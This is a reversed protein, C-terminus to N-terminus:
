MFHTSAALRSAICCMLKHIGSCFNIFAPAASSISALIVQSCFHFPVKNNMAFHQKAMRRTPALQNCRHTLSASNSQGCWPPPRYYAGLGRMACWQHLNIKICIPTIAINSPPVVPRSPGGRWVEFRQFRIADFQKLVLRVWNTAWGSSCNLGTAICDPCTSCGLVLWGHM